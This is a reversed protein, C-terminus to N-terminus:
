AFALRLKTGILSYEFHDWNKDKHKRVEDQDKLLEECKLCKYKEEMKNKTTWLIMHIESICREVEHWMRIEAEKYSMNGKEYEELIKSTEM